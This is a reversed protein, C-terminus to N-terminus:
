LDWLAITGFGVICCKTVSIHVHTCMETVFHHMRPYKELANQSQHFPNIIGPYKPKLVRLNVWQPKTVRYSTRSIPWMIAQWRVTVIWWKLRHQSIVLSTWYCESLPSAMPFLEWMSWRCIDWIRGYRVHLPRHTLSWPFNCKVAAVLRQWLCKLWHCCM